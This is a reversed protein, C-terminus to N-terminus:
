GGLNLNVDATITSSVSIFYWIYKTFKSPSYEYTCAYLMPRKKHKTTTKRQEEETENTVFSPSNNNQENISVDKKVDVNLNAHEPPNENDKAIKMNHRSKSSDVWVSRAKDGKNEM